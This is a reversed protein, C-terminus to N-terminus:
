RFSAGYGIPADFVLEGAKIWDAGSKLKAPDFVIEPEQEELWKMYGAPEKGPAYIPYSRYVPRVSMRYYYDTAVHKPSAEKHVLPLEFSALEAADWVRPPAQATVLTAPLLVAILVTNRRM